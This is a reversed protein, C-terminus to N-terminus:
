WVPSGVQVWCDTPDRFHVCTVNGRQWRRDKRNVGTSRRTILAEPSASTVPEMKQGGYDTSCVAQTHRRRRPTNLQAWPTDRGVSASLLAPCMKRPRRMGPLVAAPIHGRELTWVMSQQFHSPWKHGMLLTRGRWARM